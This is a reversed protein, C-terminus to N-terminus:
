LPESLKLKLALSPVASEAGAVMSMVISGTFSAGENVAPALRISRSSAAATLMGPQAVAMEAPASLSLECTRLKRIVPLLLGPRKEDPGDTLGVPM